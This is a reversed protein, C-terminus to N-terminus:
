NNRKELDIYVGDKFGVWYNVGAEYDNDSENDLNYEGIFDYVDDQTKINKSYDKIKLM